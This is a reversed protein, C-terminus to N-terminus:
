GQQEWLLNGINQTDAPLGLVVALGILMTLLFSKKLKNSRRRTIYM